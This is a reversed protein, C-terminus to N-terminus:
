KTGLWKKRRLVAYGITIGGALWLWVPIVSVSEKFLQWGTVGIVLAVIVGGIILLPAIQKQFKISVIRADQTIPATLTVGQDLIEQALCDLEEQNLSREVYLRLEGKEGEKFLAEYQSLDSISPGEAIIM